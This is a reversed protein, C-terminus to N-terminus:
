VKHFTANDMVIVSNQPLEPLLLTKVWHHFINSNISCDYLGVSFLQDNHIAGIANTM